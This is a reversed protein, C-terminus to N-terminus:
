QENDEAPVEIDDLIEELNEHLDHRVKFEMSPRSLEVIDEDSTGEDVIVRTVFSYYVLKAIKKAM